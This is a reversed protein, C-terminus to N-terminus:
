HHHFYLDHLHHTTIEIKDILIIKKLALRTKLMSCGLKRSEENSKDIMNKMKWKWTINKGKKNLWKFWKIRCLLNSLWCCKSRLRFRTWTNSFVNLKETRQTRPLWRVLLMLLIEALVKFLKRINTCFCALTKTMLRRKTWTLHRLELSLQIKLLINFLSTIKVKMLIVNPLTQDCIRPLGNKIHCPNSSPNQDKQIQQM